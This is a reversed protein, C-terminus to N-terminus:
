EQGETDRSASPNMGINSTLNLNTGMDAASSFRQGPQIAPSDADSPEANMYGDGHIQGSGGSPEAAPSASRVPTSTGEAVSARLHIDDARAFANRVMTGIGVGEDLAIEM